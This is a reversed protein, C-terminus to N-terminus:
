LAGNSLAQAHTDLISAILEADVIRREGMIQIISEVMDPRELMLKATAESAISFSQWIGRSDTVVHVIDDMGCQEITNLTAEVLLKSNERWKDGALEEFLTPYLDLGRVAYEIEGETTMPGRNLPACRIATDVSDKNTEGMFSIMSNVTGISIPDGYEIRDRIARVTSINADSMITGFFLSLSLSARTGNLRQSLEQKLWQIASAKEAELDNLWRALHMAGRLSM